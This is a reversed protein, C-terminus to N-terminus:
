RKRTDTLAARLAQLYVSRHGPTELQHGDTWCHSWFVDADEPVARSRCSSVPGDTELEGDGPGVCAECEEYSQIFFLKPKGALGPCSRPTFLTRLADLSLGPALPDTALLLSSRSRSIICCVFVGATHLEQQRSVARLTSELERESLLRHLTVSFRLALFAQELDDGETGVCDIILCVGIPDTMRYVEEQCGSGSSSRAAEKKVPTQTDCFKHTQWGKCSGLSFGSSFGSSTHAAPPRFHQAREPPCVEPNAMVATHQFRSIKRALDTRHISRLCDEIFGTKESSLQDLKELEVVIDLFSQVNELKQKPLTGRLLFSLSKLDEADMDESVDAMLSRYEPVAQRTRLMGEVSSKSTSLVERLLDYRKIKLVLEMLFVGDVRTQSLLTHLTGRPDASFCDPDLDGCLYSLRKCEDTSLEETIQSITHSLVSM